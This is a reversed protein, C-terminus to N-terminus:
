FLVKLSMLMTRNGPNTTNTGFIPSNMTAVPNGFNRTNFANIFDTRFQVKLRESVAVNKFVGANWNSFIPGRFTNRGLNGFQTSSNALPINTASNLSTTLLGTGNVPMIFTRLNGEIADKTFAGSPNVNPRASAATGIGFTDVGTRITFPQGSQIDWFGSVQWGGFAQKAVRNWSASNKIWPVDYSWYAVLRHPRDFVSRSWENRYNNYDQPVQPSSNTIDGVGLSEDNDSLNASYTYNGGFLLGNSLRRDFRVYGSSYFGKATSEITTRAGWLPNLRRSAAPNVAATVGPLGPIANANNTSRVLAAQDATLVGPNTQGQRIGYYSRTGAHGLELVYGKGFQRQVSLSWIHATPSQLNVPANVYALRPDFNPAAGTRISPWANALSSRDLTSTKVRPYNSATVTLINFFLYDYTMGYGGRVVTRDKGLLKGLFGSESSPSYAFGLRPAWNNRDNKALGPVGASLSESDSAGFAGFPLNATEYRLGLNLTLNNRLKFDDQFFYAQQHQRADFSATNLAVALTAPRNNLFDAFNDFTYTGKSDFASINLLKLYSYNFGFRLSHRGLNYTVTDQFQYQNQTRGQPFNSAGGVTFFGSIGSTPTKPDNEPFDLQGKIYAFRFENVMRSNVTWTDSVAHNQRRIVQAGSFLSGFQLNSIVDPQNRDDILYRYSLSHKDGLRHDVRGIAYWFNYPNALPINITGIPINVGNVATTRLNTYGPNLAYIQPLFSLGSLAAQRSATPQDTGLPLNALAAYGAQTPITANTSNRADPAERRRNTEILAFFFTKDRIIRGGLSGGAQNQNFRPTATLGARKNLLNVPEMWNARYYDFVSGHFTNGGSKTVVSIQAGSSRGFEASYPSTQIQFQDVGEPIVRLNSVTISPDNNDVGDLMFNNNRARQGNASVGTSGPGRAATPALLALQNVDRTAGTLPIDNVFKSQFTREITASSRALEVGVPPEVVEIVTSTAGVVLSPNLTVEAGTNLEVRSVSYTEFGPKQFELRYAGPEVGVMRYVGADNTIVTRDAGTAINKAKVTVDPMAGGTPDTVVGTFSGRIMQAPACLGLALLAIAARVPLNLNM